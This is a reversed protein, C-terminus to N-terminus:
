ACVTVYGLPGSVCPPTIYVGPGPGGWGRNDWGRNDWDRHDNWDGGGHGWGWGHDMPIVAPDTAPSASAIGSSIGM